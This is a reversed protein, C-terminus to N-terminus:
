WASDGPPREAVGNHGLTLAPHCPGWLRQTFTEAAGGPPAAVIQAPADLPAGPVRHTLHRAM